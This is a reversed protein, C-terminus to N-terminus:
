VGTIENSGPLSIRNSRQLFFFTPVFVPSLGNGELGEMNIDNYETHVLVLYLVPMNVIKFYLM